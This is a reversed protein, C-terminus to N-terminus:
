SKKKFCESKWCKKQERRLKRRKSVDSAMWLFRGTETINATKREYNKPMHGSTRRGKTLKRVVRTGHPKQKRSQRGQKMCFIRFRKEVKFRQLTRPGSSKFVKVAGPPFHDRRGAPTGKGVKQHGRHVIERPCRKKSAANDEEQIEKKQSSTSSPPRDM